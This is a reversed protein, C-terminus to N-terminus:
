WVCVCVCVCVCGMNGCLVVCCLLVGSPLRAAHEALQVVEVGVIEPNGVVRDEVEGEASVSRAVNVILDQGLLDLIELAASM